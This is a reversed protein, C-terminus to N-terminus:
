STDIAVQIDHALNRPSLDAGAGLSSVWEGGPAYIRVPASHLTDSGTVASALVGYDRWARRVATEPGILYELAGEARYRRLFSRVAAPTDERPDTSIAVFAVRRRDDPDLRALARPATAAIVPCSERCQADLFTLALVKDRLGSTSVQRGTYSRLRFDPAKVGSPPQSGRYDPSADADRLVFLGALALLLPLAGAIAVLVLHRTRV